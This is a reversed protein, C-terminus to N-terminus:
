LTRRHFLRRARDIARLVARAKNRTEDAERQPDSDYVIGAGAQVTLTDGRAVLTRIAICLDVNGDVGITGIAGGYFGRRHTELADIIEMARIKPAGSLTGAPFTASLVDAPALGDRVTGAVHSVLHMVHSYREVVMQEVVCVSGTDSVRGVDNRGLDVLMVHEAREKPDALLEKELASDQEATAGRPRTGAIPRVEVRHDTLRVLVEPSAGVLATDDLELYFMYPSPNLGRLTRYILFPHLGAAPQEFRRSLVVQIIDGAGIYKRAQEVVEGFAEDSMSVGVAQPTPAPSPPLTPLPGALRAEAVDLAAEAEAWIAPARGPDDIEALYVLMGSHRLNDWLLILQTEMFLLEPPDDDGAHADPIREMWRVADYTVAGVLGGVFRPLAPDHYVRRGRFRGTVEALPDAVERTAPPRGPREVTLQRGRARYVARPETGIFTYRAWTEGGEVSELLFSWKGRRLKWFATVPTDLDTFVARTVPILDHAAALRVFADLGDSM